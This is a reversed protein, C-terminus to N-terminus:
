NKRLSNMSSEVARSVDIRGYGGKPSIPKAQTLFMAASKPAINGDVGVLLAAAGAVLPTSFSTGTVRAYRGGPFTTILDEGPASVWVSDTGRNSFSALRDASSTSLCDLM